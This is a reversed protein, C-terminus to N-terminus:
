SQQAVRVEDAHPRGARLVGPTQRVPSPKTKKGITAFWPVVFKHYCHHCIMPRLLLCLQLWEWKSRIKRAYAKEAWCRPCKMRDAKM